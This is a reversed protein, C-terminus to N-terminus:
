DLDMLEGDGQAEADEEAEMDEEAEAVADGQAGAYVAVYAGHNRELLEMLELADWRGEVGQLAAGVGQGFEASYGGGGQMELGEVVRPVFRLQRGPPPDRLYPTRGFLCWHVSAGVAWVDSAQNADDRDLESEPNTFEPAAYEATMFCILEDLPMGVETAGGFDALQVTPLDSHRGPSLLINDPKIDRHLVPARTSPARASPDFATTGYGTHLFAIAKALSLFIHRMQAEPMPTWRSQPTLCRETAWDTLSGFKCYTMVLSQYHSRPVCPFWDRFQVVTTTGEGAGSRRLLHLIHLERPPLPTGRQDLRQGMRKVAYAERTSTERMLRVSGESGSGLKTEAEYNNKFHIKREQMTQPHTRFAVGAVFQDRVNTSAM